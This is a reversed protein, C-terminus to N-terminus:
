GGQELVDQEAFRAKRGLRIGHDEPDRVHRLQVFLGSELDLALRIANAGPAQEGDVRRKIGLTQLAAVDIEDIRLLQPVVLQQGPLAVTAGPRDPRGERIRRPVAGVAEIHDDILGVPAHDTTLRGRLRPGQHLTEQEPVRFGPQDPHRQHDTNRRRGLPEHIQELLGLGDRDMTHLYLSLIDPFGPQEFAADQDVM